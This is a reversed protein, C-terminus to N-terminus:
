RSWVWGKKVPDIRANIEGETKMKMLVRVAGDPCGDSMMNIEREIESTTMEGRADILLLIKERIDENHTM